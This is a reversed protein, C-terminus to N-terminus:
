GVVAPNIHRSVLRYEHWILWMIIMDFLTLAILLASHGIIIQYIQYIMFLGLVVLSAPYAWLQNKLLAVVLALKIVGRSLLYVALFVQPTVSFQQALTIAHAAIFNGPEEVLENQSAAIIANSISAPAVFLAVIGAFIETASLVGKLIIGTRFLRYIYKERLARLTDM